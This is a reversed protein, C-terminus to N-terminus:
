NKQQLQGCQHNQIRMLRQLLGQFILRHSSNRQRQRNGQDLTTPVVRVVQGATALKVQVRVVQGATAWNVKVRVVQGAAALTVLLPTQKPHDAVSQVSGKLQM